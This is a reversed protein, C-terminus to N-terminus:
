EGFVRAEQGDWKLARLVRTLVLITDVEQIGKVPDVQCISDAFLLGDEYGIQFEGREDSYCVIKHGYHVTFGEDSIIRGFCLWRRRFM